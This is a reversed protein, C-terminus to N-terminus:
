PAAEVPQEKRREIEQATINKLVTAERLLTYFKEEGYTSIVSDYLERLLASQEKAASTMEESMQIYTGKDDSLWHVLGKKQLAAVLKSTERTSLKLNKSIDSLYVRSSDLNDRSHAFLWVLVYDRLSLKQFIVDTDLHTERLQSLLAPTSLEQMSHQTNQEM